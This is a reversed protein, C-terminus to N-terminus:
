PRYVQRVQAGPYYHRLIDAASHGRAAMVRAGQQCLGVGHGNGGGTFTVSEIRGSSRNTRLVFMGSWLGLTQRIPLEKEIIRRGQTGVIELRRVRGSPRREIVRIDTVVGVGCARALEAATMTKEWRFYKRAYAPYGEGGPHCFFGSSDSELFRLLASDSSLDPVVKPRDTDLVSELGAIPRSDWVDEPPATLGGCVNHYVANLVEGNAVLVMGFTADVAANAAATEVSVGKYVMCHVSDCLDYGDSAHPSRTLRHLAESRACIAQAKLAEPHADAGIEAPLVGKLYDDLQVENIVRIQSDVAVLHCRGRYRRDRRENLVFGEGDPGPRSPVVMVSSHRGVPRGNITINLGGAGTACEVIGQGASRGIETEGSRVIFGSPVGVSVQRQQSAILVRIWGGREVIARQARM